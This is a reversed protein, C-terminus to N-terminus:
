GTHGMRDMISRLCAHVNASSTDVEMDSVAAYHERRASLLASVEDELAEGTLPVRPAVAQRAALVAPPAHLLVVFLSAPRLASRVALSLVAGGGLAVVGPGPTSVATVSM